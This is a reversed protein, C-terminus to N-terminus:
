DNKNLHVINTKEGYLLEYGGRHLESRMTNHKPVEEAGYDEVLKDITDHMSLVAYYHNISDSPSLNFIMVFLKLNQDKHQEIIEILPKWDKYNLTYLRADRTM